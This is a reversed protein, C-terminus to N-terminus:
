TSKSSKSYYYLIYIFLRNIFWLYLFIREIMQNVCDKMYNMYQIGSTINNNLLLSYQVTTQFNPVNHFVHFTNQLLCGNMTFSIKDPSSLTEYYPSLLIQNHYIADHVTYGEDSIENHLLEM